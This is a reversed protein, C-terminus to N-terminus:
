SLTKLQCCRAFEVVSQLGKDGLMNYALSCLISATVYCCQCLLYTCAAFITCVSICNGLIIKQTLKLGTLLVCTTRRTFLKECLLMISLWM